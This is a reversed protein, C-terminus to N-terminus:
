ERHAEIYAALARLREPDEGVLGLTTNCPTCLLARVKGTQHDHDVPLSAVVPEAKKCIACVGGQAALLRDYDASTMGYQRRLRWARHYARNQNRQETTWAAQRANQRALVRERNAQYFARRKAREADRDSAAYREAARASKRAKQEPSLAKAM